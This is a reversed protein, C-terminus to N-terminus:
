ADRAVGLYLFGPGEDRWPAGLPDLAAALSPAWSGRVSEEATEFGHDATLLFVTEDLVGVRDLHDLFAGLRRDCDRLADLGIPSRPGGAHHGADTTYQSWWTVAPRDAPDAASFLGVVTSLFSKTVSHTMDVHRTDGWEAVVRGHLIVLGNAAARESTVSPQKQM